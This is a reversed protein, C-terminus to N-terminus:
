PLGLRGPRYDRLQVHYYFHHGQKGDRQLLSQVPAWRGVLGHKGVALRRLDGTCAHVDDGLVEGLTLGETYAYYLVPGQISPSLEPSRISPNSKLGTCHNGLGEVSKTREPAPLTLRM